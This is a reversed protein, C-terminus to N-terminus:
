GNRTYAINISGADFTDSGSSTIRVRDLTASLTKDGSALIYSAATAEHGNFDAKWQNGSYRRLVMTGHLLRTAANVRIIFGTTSTVGAGNYASAADYGTTEYGGSDGIQVEINDTGSLSVGDFMVEIVDVDSPIGTYGHATGSTTATSTELTRAKKAIEAAIYAATSQQSPPRTASDSGFGDEDLIDLTALGGLGLTTRAASASADDLITRAFSTVAMEAWAGVGTSYISKDAASPFGGLGTSGQSHFYQAWLESGDTYVLVSSGDPVVHTAAGNVTESGSPDLTVAGGDAHVMCHWGTTLTAAEYGLTM